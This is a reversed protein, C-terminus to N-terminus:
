DKPCPTYDRFVISFKFISFSTKQASVNETWLLPLILDKFREGVNAIKSVDGLAMNIQYRVALDLPLGSEPQVVFYSQHKKPDPNLGHEVDKSLYPDGYIFHPYSLAIPFGYYCGHVDM